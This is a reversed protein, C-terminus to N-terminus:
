TSSRPPCGPGQHKGLPVEESTFGRTATPSNEHQNGGSYRTIVDHTWRPDQVGRSDFHICYSDTTNTHPIQPLYSCIPEMHERSIDTAQRSYHPRELVLHAMRWTLRSLVEKWIRRVGEQLIYLIGRSIHETLMNTTGFELEPKYLWSRITAKRFKQAVRSLTLNYNRYNNRLSM